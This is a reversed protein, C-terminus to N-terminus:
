GTVARITILNEYARSDGNVGLTKEFFLVAFSQWLDNYLGAAKIEELIIKDEACLIALRKRAIYSLILIAPVPGLFPQRNIIENSIGM